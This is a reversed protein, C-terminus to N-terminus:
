QTFDKWISAIAPMEVNIFPTHLLANLLGNITPLKGETSHKMETEALQGQFWVRLSHNEANTSILHNRQEGKVLTEDYICRMLRVEQSFSM